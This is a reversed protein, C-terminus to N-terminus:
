PNKLASATSRACPWTRRSAIGEDTRSLAARLGRSRLTSLAVYVRNSAAEPLMKQGPWGAALLAEGSVTAGLDRAHADVLAEFIRWLSGFRALEVWAGDGLRFRRLTRSVALTVEAQRAAERALLRLMWRADDSAEALSTPADPRAARSAEVRARVAAPDARETFARALSVLGDAYPDELGDAIVTARALLGHAEDLRATEACVAALRLTALLESALDGSRRQADLARRQLAEARSLDGAEHEVAGLNGLAIGVLRQDGVAELQTVARSLRERAEDFRGDEQDLLAINCLFVGELRAENAARFIPLARRYNGKAGVADRADHCLAGLNGLCRGEAVRDGARVAAALAEEYCGRATDLARVRHELVGLSTLASVRQSADDGALAVAERLARRAEEVRGLLQLAEALCVQARM